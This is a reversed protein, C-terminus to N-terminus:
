VHQSCLPKVPKQKTQIFQKNSHGDLKPLSPGWFQWGVQVNRARVPAFDCGVDKACNLM